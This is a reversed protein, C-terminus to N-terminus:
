RGADNAAEMRALEAANWQGGCWMQDRTIRGDGGVEFVHCHHAAHRVGDDDWVHLYTVVEGAGVPHRALEAFSGEHRFWGGYQAAIAAAGSKTFRWGPVTADLVADDAFADRLGDGGGAVVAALFRDIGQTRTTTTM